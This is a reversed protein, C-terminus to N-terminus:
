RSEREFAIYKEPRQRSNRSRCWDSAVPGLTCGTRVSITNARTWLFFWIPIVATRAWGRETLGWESPADSSIVQQHQDEVVYVLAKGDVAHVPPSATDGTKIDFKTGYPGCIADAVANVDQALASAVLLIVVFAAKM